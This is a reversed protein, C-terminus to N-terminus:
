YGRGEPRPLFAFSSKLRVFLKILILEATQAADLGNVLESSSLIM